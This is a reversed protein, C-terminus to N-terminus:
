INKPTNLMAKGVRLSTDWDHDVLRLIQQATPASLRDYNVSAKLEIYLEGCRLWNGTKFFEQRVRFNAENYLNNAYHCAQQVELPAKIWTREVQQTTNEPPHEM